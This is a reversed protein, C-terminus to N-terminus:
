CAPSPAKRTVRFRVAGSGAAERSIEHEEGFHEACGVLLGHAFDEFPRPSRYVMDIRDKGHRTWDFRPLEADPYLKRVEVHIHDEILTLFSLADEVEEFFQPFAVAFRAFLHRGFESVLDPGPQGTASSLAATLAVFERYDYTGVATYAGGSALRAEEIIRDATEPGFRDEVMEIFETFVVGKM